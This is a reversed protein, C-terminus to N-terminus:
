QGTADDVDIRGDGHVSIAAGEYEFELTLTESDTSRFVRNLADTDVAEYLPTEVETPDVDRADAIAEVVRVAM